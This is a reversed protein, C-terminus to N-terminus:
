SAHVTQGETGTHLLLMDQLDIIQHKLIDVPCLLVYATAKVLDEFM